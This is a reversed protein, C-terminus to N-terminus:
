SDQCVTAARRSAPLEPGTSISVAFSSCCVFWCLQFLSHSAWIPHRYLETPKHTYPRVSHGVLQVRGNCGLGWAAQQVVMPAGQQLRRGFDSAKTNERTALVAFDKAKATASRVNGGAVAASIADESASIAQSIRDARSNTSGAPSACRCLVVRLVLRCPVTVRTRM